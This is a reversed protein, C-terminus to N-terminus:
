LRAMWFRFREQGTIERVLGREEFTQMNRQVAARSAGTDQELMPASVLPWRGLAEILRPPTRGSMDRTGHEARIQWDALRDCEMLARLAAREVGAYWAGLRESVPGGVRHSGVGGLAVPLFQAGNPRGEEAGIRAAIIAGEIQAAEGSLDYFRWGHWALAARTIPHLADARELLSSWEHALVDFDSGLPRAMLERESPDPNPDRSLFEALDGLDHAARAELRRVAWSARALVRADDSAGSLRTAIYLALRDMAVRDGLQWGLDVVEMLVLRSRWGPPASRMREDFAGFAAACRALPVALASEARRWEEVSLRPEARHRALPWPPDTPAVGEDAPPPLFWLDEDSQPDPDYISGSTTAGTQERRREAMM